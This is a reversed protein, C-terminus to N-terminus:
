MKMQSHDHAAMPNAGNRLIYESHMLYAGSVVIRDGEGIGATIEVTRANEMGITVMVSRFTNKGTEKWVYSGKSDRLVAELPLSLAKPQQQKLWVNAQMGPRLQGDPNVIEIRALVIQTNANLEPNLFTVKGAYTDPLGEVQVGVRAGEKVEKAESPYLQAEAWLTSLNTVTVLTSGESVYQGETVAIEQLIGSQPSVYTFVPNAKGAAALLKLQSTTMGLLRLKQAAAEVLQGYRGETSGFEKQQALAILYENQLSQLGESYVDFLPAGQRIPEGTQKFYLREIRGAVRSSVTETQNENVTLTGTLLTPQIQTAYEIPTVRINALRIQEESLMLEGPSAGNKAGTNKVVKVLEMHCIPCTGPKDQVVQPHMSCSYTDQSANGAVKKDNCATVFLAVWLWPLAWTLNKLQKM